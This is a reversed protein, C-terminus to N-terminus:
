GEFAKTLPPVVQKKRSVVGPLNMRKNDGLKHGFAEEVKDTDDGVVLLESDSNLINTAILIFLQYGNADMLEHMKKELDAQRKFVDDLEVIYGAGDYAEAGGDVLLADTHGAAVGVEDVVLAGAAPVHDVKLQATGVHFDAGAGPEAQM